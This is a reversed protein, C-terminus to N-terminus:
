GKPTGRSYLVTAARRIPCPECLVAGLPSKVCPWGTRWLFRWVASRSLRGIAGYPESPPPVRFAFPLSPRLLLRPSHVPYAEVHALREVPNAHQVFIAFLNERAPDFGRFLVQLGDAQLNLSQALIADHADIQHAPRRREQFRDEDLARLLEEM